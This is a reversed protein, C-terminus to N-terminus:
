NRLVAPRRISRLIPVSLRDPPPPTGGTSYDGCSPGDHVYGADRDPRWEARAGPGCIRIRNRVHRSCPRRGEVGFSAAAAKFPNLWKPMHRRQRTSYSPWGPSPRRLRRSCRWGNAAGDEIITFGTCQGGAAPLERRLRRGPDIVPVFVIPITRTQQLLVSSSTAHMSDPGACRSSNRRVSGRRRMAPRRGALTSGSTAARTWGLKRLEDRFAAVFAQGQRDDRGSRNASRDAAGRWAAACACRAAVDGCRRWGAIFDRRKM